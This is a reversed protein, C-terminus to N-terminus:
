NKVSKPMMKSANEIKLSTKEVTKLVLAAPNQQYRAKLWRAEWATEWPTPPRGADVISGLDARIEFFDDYFRSSKFDSGEQPLSPAVFAALLGGLPM